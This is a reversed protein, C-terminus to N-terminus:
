ASRGATSLESALQECITMLAARCAAAAATDDAEVHRLYQECQRRLDQAGLLHVTQDLKEICARVGAAEGQGLMVAKKREVDLVLQQSVDNFAAGACVRLQEVKEGDCITFVAPHTDRRVPLSVSFRSGEGLTSFVELRAGIAELCQKAVSLGLGVGGVRRTFSSDVQYFPTFLQELHEASKGSGTDMVEIILREDGAGRADLSATVQVSGTETFKLANDILKVLATSLRQPDTVVDRPVGAGVDVSFGLQKARARVDHGKSVVDLFARVDVPVYNVRLENGQTVQLIDEVIGKLREGSHQMAQVLSQLDASLDYQCLIQNIGLIGNIPTRLEHGVNSLFVTKQANAESMAKNLAQLTVAQERLNNQIRLELSMDRVVCM